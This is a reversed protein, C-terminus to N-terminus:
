TGFPPLAPTTSTSCRATCRLITSSPLPYTYDAVPSTDATKSPPTLLLSCRQNVAQQRDEEIVLNSVNTIRMSSSLKAPPNVFPQFVLPNEVPQLYQLGVSIVRIGGPNSYGFAQIMDANPDFNKPTMFTSFADLQRSVETFPYAIFGGWLPGQSFVKLDLRTVVGFNNSGGKLPLFLDSTSNVQVITGSALVIEFGVVNDCGWGHRPGLYSLGGGTLFGGVGVSAVRGGAVTLNLLDLKQYVQIWRAGTGVRAVNRDSDLIVSNLRSLDVTVGSDINAAGAFLTHGGSRIAFQGLRSHKERFKAMTKVVTSVDSNLTPSVICVPSLSQEQLSFYSKISETYIPNGPYSVKGPLLDSLAACPSDVFGNSAYISRLLSDSIVFVTLSKIPAM